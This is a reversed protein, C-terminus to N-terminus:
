FLLSIPWLPKAEVNMLHADGSQLRVYGAAAVMAGNNMCLNLPPYRVPVKVERNIQQRLYHNAAVGGVVLVEQAESQHLAEKLRRILIDVLSTQLSAATDHISIDSKLQRKGGPHSIRGATGVPAVTIENLVAAKIGNFSLVDNQLRLQRLFNYAIGNGRVASEEIKPGAPYQFGLVRGIKEITEGITDDTTEAIVKYRNYDTMKLFTTTASSIIVALAPFHLERFPQVLKCAYIHAETHHVGILPKNHILSLAKAYNLGIDLSSGLGPGQTVAVASIQDPSIGADALAQDVVYSIYQLPDHRSEQFQSDTPPLRKLRSTNVESAIQIGDIVVGAVTDNGSTDIGLTYHM